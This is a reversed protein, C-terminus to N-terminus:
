QSGEKSVGSISCGRISCLQNHSLEGCNRGYKKEHFWTITKLSTKMWKKSNPLDRSHDTLALVYFPSKEPDSLLDLANSNTAMILSM